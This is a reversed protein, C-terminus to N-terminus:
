TPFGKKTIMGNLCMKTTSMYLYMFTRPGTRKASTNATVVKINHKKNTSVGFKRKSAYITRTISDSKEDRYALPTLQRILTTHRRSGQSGLWCCLWYRHSTYSRSGRGRGRSRTLWCCMLGRLFLCRRSEGVLWSSVRGLCGDGRRSQLVGQCRCSQLGLVHGLLGHQESSLDM